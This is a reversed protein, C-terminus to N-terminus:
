IKWSKIEIVIERYRLTPRKSYVFAIIDLFSIKQLPAVAMRMSCIFRDTRDDAVDFSVYRSPTITPVKM